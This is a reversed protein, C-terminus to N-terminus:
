SSAPAASGQGMRVAVFERLGTVTFDGALMENAQDWKPEGKLVLNFNSKLYKQMEPLIFAGFMFQLSVGADPTASVEARIKLTDPDALDAKIRGSNIGVISPLAMKNFDETSLATKWDMGYLQMMTAIITLLEGNRNDLAIELAHGGQIIMPETPADHTWHELIKGELQQPLAISGNAVLTGRQTLTLGEPAWQVFPINALVGEKNALEVLIPGGRRENVFLTVGMTGASFDSGALIALEHPLVNGLQERVDFPVWAPVKIDPPLLTKLYEQLLGPEAKVRLRTQSTALSEHPVLPAETIGYMKAYSYGVVGAVAVMAVVLLGAIM